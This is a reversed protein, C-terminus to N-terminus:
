GNDRLKWHLVKIASQIMFRFRHTLADSGWSSAYDHVAYTSEDDYRGKIWDKGCLLQQPLLRFGAIEQEINNMKFGIAEMYRTFLMVNTTMDFSLKRFFPRHQYIQLFDNIIKNGRECALIGTEVYVDHEFSGFGRLNLWENPFTKKVIIDTDFYIGGESVLAQLRAVDSVFAYKGAFYAQRTYLRANIDFNSEDWKKIEFDPMCRRWTEIYKLVEPPLPKNGFWCYHIIKPIM